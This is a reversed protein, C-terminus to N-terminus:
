RCFNLVAHIAQRASGLGLVLICCDWWDGLCARLLLVLLRLLLHHLHVM